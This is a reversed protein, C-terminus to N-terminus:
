EFDQSARPGFAALRNSELEDPSLIRAGVLNALFAKDMCRGILRTRSERGGREITLVKRNSVTSPRRM